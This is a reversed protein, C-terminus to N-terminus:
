GPALLHCAVEALVVLQLHPSMERALHREPDSRKPPQTDGHVIERATTAACVQVLQPRM